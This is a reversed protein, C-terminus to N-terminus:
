GLPLGLLECIVSLPLKRAYRHVLDAPSGAAFLEDALEGAIELIRPEMELAARRRFAEDVIGRLRAHDPEDISLMHNALTRIFAPIWWPLGAIGGDEKRLAFSESDKLVQDALQHTTTAWVKGIIPLRVEVIPGSARLKAIETAPDRFYHQSVLDARG